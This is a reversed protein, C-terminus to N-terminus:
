APDTANQRWRRFIIRHMLLIVTLTMLVSFVVDSFFHGGAAMRAFSIVLTFISAAAFAAARWPPPTLMAPAFTWAASAPEGAAFSCNRECTGGPNWWDVYVKDKGFEVVQLPRPRHWHEKFVANVLLGPGLALTSVLFLVVRGSVAMKPRRLLRPFIAGAIAALCIAIAVYGHERMMGVYPNTEALFRNSRQDFFLQAIRLDPEFGLVAALTLLAAVGALVFIM